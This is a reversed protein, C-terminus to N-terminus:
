KEKSQKLLAYFKDKLKELKPSIIMQCYPQNPNKRYYERHNEEAPYFKQLPKVETVVPRKPDSKNLERIFSEAEKKQKDDSHLIISRYQPGVDNGQRNLATPDHTAFFITLLDRYSIERPNFEIKSVEAHGTTGSSVQEYTPNPLQGGAYGPM